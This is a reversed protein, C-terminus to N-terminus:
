LRGVAALIDAPESRTAYNSHVDIWRIVGGVDVVVVTPMPIGYSGDANTAAVDLGTEAQAGRAESSVETVIGLAGAISNGPDSLVTYTLGNREAITLTGDPTQPSIAILAAGSETLSPVLAQEYARLALNCYPCWAGRYFVVVAPRGARTAALTTANADVDLLAGDPMPAGPAAVGDPVGEREMRQQDAAFTALRAPPAKAKMGAQMARVQAALTDSETTL